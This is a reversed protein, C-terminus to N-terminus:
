ELPTAASSRFTSGYKAASTSAILQKLGGTTGRVTWSATAHDTASGKTGLTGLSQTQQGTVLEVGAPVVLTAQANDATLDSSPNAVTATVTVTTNPPVPGQRSLGVTISPQPTALPVLPRTAAIAFPEGSPGDVE